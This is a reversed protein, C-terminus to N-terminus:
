GGVGRAASAAVEAPTAARDLVKLKRGEARLQRRLVTVAQARARSDRRLAAPSDPDTRVSRPPPAPTSRLDPPQQTECAVGPELPPRQPQGPPNVGRMTTSTTGLLGNGLTFTELGGTGLVKFWQGNADSSRSEGALGVLSKPFEQHVRGSAEFKPDGVTDNGFPVLVENVCSSLLRVEGLLGVSRRAAVTAPGVTRRLDRSLGRLEAPGVLGRLQRVLPLLADIAPGTSRVAPVALRAFRRVSPAARNVAALAPLAAQLTRPLEDVSARLDAEGAALAGTTRDFDVILSRLAQRDRDLAAAVRGQNRFFSALDGPQQGLLAESVIASFKYAAPQFKLSRNLAAGGGATQTRLLEAFTTRLDARVDSTLVKLVEDFQVANATQDAPVVDDEDLEPSSPRGPEVDVFFNGELFIRPRIKFQADRHLPRGEDRIEMEVIATPSGPGEPRVATVTGIEIGAVRVPSGNRIGQSDRFAANVTYPPNLFPLDERVALWIALAGVVLVLAGVAFPNRTRRRRM